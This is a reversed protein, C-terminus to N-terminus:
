IGKSNGGCVKTRYYARKTWEFTLYIFSVVLYDGTSKDQHTISIRIQPKFASLRREGSTIRFVRVSCTKLIPNL